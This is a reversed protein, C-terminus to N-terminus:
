SITSEEMLHIATKDDLEPQTVLHFYGIEVRHHELTAALDERQQKLECSINTHGSTWSLHM